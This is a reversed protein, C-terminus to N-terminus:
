DGPMEGELPEGEKSRQLKKLHAKGRWCLWLFAAMGCGNFVSCNVLEFYFVHRLLLRLWSQDPELIMRPM